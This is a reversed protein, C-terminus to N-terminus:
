TTGGGELPLSCINADYNVKLTPEEEPPATPAASQPLLTEDFNLGETESREVDGRCPLCPFDAFVIIPAGKPSSDACSVSPNQLLRIFRSNLTPEEEPPATAFRSLSYPRIM